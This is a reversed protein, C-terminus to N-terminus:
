YPMFMHLPLLSIYSSTAAAFTWSLGNILSCPYLSHDTSPVTNVHQVRWEGGAPREVSWNSLAPPLLCSSLLPVYQLVDMGIEDAASVYEDWPAGLFELEADDLCSDRPHSPNFFTTTLPFTSVMHYM